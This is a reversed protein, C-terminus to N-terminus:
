YHYKIYREIRKMITALCYFGCLWCGDVYLDYFYQEKDSKSLRWKIIFDM